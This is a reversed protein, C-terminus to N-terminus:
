FFTGRFTLTVGRGWDYLTKDKWKSNSVYCNMSFVENERSWCIELKERFEQVPALRAPASSNCYWM